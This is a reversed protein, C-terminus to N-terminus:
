HSRRNTNRYTSADSSEISVCAFATEQSFWHRRAMLGPRPPRARVSLGDIAGSRMLELVESAKAVGKALKGEVYLGRRDERIDPMADAPLALGKVQGVRASPLM